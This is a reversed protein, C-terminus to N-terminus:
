QQVEAGHGKGDPHNTFYISYRPFRAYSKVTFHTESILMVDVDYQTLFIRLENAHACLGNTNWICIKFEDMMLM